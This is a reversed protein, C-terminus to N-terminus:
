AANKQASRTSVKRIHWTMTEPAPQRRQPESVASVQMQAGPKCIVRFIHGYPSTVEFVGEENRLFEAPNEVTSTAETTSIM